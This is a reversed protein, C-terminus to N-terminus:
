VFRWSALAGLYFSLETALQASEPAHESVAPTKFRCFAMLGLGVLVSAALGVLGPVGLLLAPGFGLLLALGLSMPGLRSISPDSRASMVFVSLAYSVAHGGIMMLALPFNAPVEFPLKAASLAMLTNFKILLGLVGVLLVLRSDSVARRYATLATAAM